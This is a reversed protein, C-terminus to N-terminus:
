LLSEIRDLLRPIEDPDATCMLKIADATVEDQRTIFVDSIRKGFGGCLATLVAPRVGRFLETQSDPVVARGYQDREFGKKMEYHDRQQESLHLLANRASRRPLYDVPIYNEIKRKKLIVFPIGGPDCSSQVKEITPTREGPYSQDSDAFVIIRLPGVAQSRIQEVAKGVEGFGGLHRVDLWGQDLALLLDDRDFAKIMTFLFAGDSERNEVLVYAPTQLARVAEKPRLSTEGDTDENSVTIVIVHMSTRKPYASATVSKTLAEISRRSSRGEYDTQIWRSDLVADPDEISWVHRGELITHVIADLSDFASPDELVTDAFRVNM